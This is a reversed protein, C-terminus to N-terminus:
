DGSHTLQEPHSNRRSSSKKSSASKTTKNASSKTTTKRAAPKTAGASSTKRSGAKRPKQEPQIDAVTEVGSVPEENIASEVLASAGLVSNETVRGDDSAKSSEMERLLYDLIEGEARFWDEAEYGAEFGRSESIHYAREAIMKQVADNRLLEERTQQWNM